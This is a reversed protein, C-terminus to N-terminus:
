ALEAEARGLLHLIHKGGSAQRYLCSACGSSALPRRPLALTKNLIQIVTTQAAASADPTPLWPTM